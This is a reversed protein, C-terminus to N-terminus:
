RSLGDLDVGQWRPGVGSITVIRPSDDAVASADVPSTWIDIELRDDALGEAIGQGWEVVTVAGALTADLDLDDLEHASTLRYADVHVLLPRGNTSPHQRSIVFTPSIIPGVSALGRGIGQTLTTKGAGLDGSAIVVDGPRLLDALREGLSTMAEATPVHVALPLAKALIVGNPADRAITFGRHQWFAILTAFEGRAFLEVDRHGLTAALEEAASVMASAIGHRQFDPHVSVRQFTAGSTGPVVLIVGAPRGGVTAFIGGGRSMTTLVSDPTENIATSPPDLEPRAGFAAHIVEVMAAADLQSAVAVVLDSVSVNM